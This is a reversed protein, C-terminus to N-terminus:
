RLVIDATHIENCLEIFRNAEDLNELFYISYILCEDSSYRQYINKIKNIEINKSLFLTVKNKPNKSLIEEIETEDNIIHSNKFNKLLKTEDITNDPTLYNNKIDEFSILKDYPYKPNNRNTKFIEHLGEVFLEEGFEKKFLKCYKEALIEYNDNYSDLIFESIGDVDNFILENPYIYKSGPWNILVSISRDLIGESPSLHSGEVDSVSLVYGINSFMEEREIWGQRIISDSLDHEEIFSDCDNFYDIQNQHKGWHMETYDKGM